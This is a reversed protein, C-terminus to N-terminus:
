KYNLTLPETEKPEELEIWIEEGRDFAKDMEKYLRTFASTSENLVIQGGTKYEFREGTLLCGNTDDVTNGIHMLIWKFNPVDLIHPVFLFGHRRHQKTYISGVQRKEIKYRGRPIRTEGWVKVDKHGDELIFCFRKGEVYLISLTAKETQFIVKTKLEM